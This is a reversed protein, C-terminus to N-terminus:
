KRQYLIYELENQTIDILFLKPCLTQDAEKKCKKPKSGSIYHEKWAHTADEKIKVAKDEERTININALLQRPIKPPTSAIAHEYTFFLMINVFLKHPKQFQLPAYLVTIQFIPTHVLSTFSVQQKTNCRFMITNFIQHLSAVVM